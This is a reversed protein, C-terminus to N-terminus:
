ISFGFIIGMASNGSTANGTSGNESVYTWSYNSSAWPSRTWWRYGRVWVSGDSNQINESSSLDRVGLRTHTSAYEASVYYYPYSGVAWIDGETVPYYEDLLVPNTGSSIIRKGPISNNRDDIIIEPFKIRSNNSSFYSIITGEYSYPASSSGGIERLSPIYIKDDFYNTASSGSGVSSAIEVMKIASQMNYPMADWVRNNLFTRMTAVGWGGANSSGSSITYLKSLEDNLVWSTNAYNSVSTAWYRNEGAYEMRHTEGTWSALKRAVNNGLDDFWIKCWHIWGKAYNRHGGALVPDAGFCLIQSSLASTSRVSQTYSLSDQYTTGNNNFSYIYLSSSGKKHRLVIMNRCGGYGVNTMQGGWEVQNNTNNGNFTLHFGESGNREYCSILTGSASSTSLFEYDVALTFSPADEDFLHLETDIHTSGDFFTDSLLEIEDVNSYTPNFARGGITFDVHDKADFYTSAMRAQAIGYIEAISMDYSEKGTSPLNAEDWVAYVDMDDKISGTSKDWGNWLSYHFTQEGSTDKPWEGNYVLETEVGATQVDLPVVSGPKSFWRVTYTRPTSTYQATIVRDSVVPSTINDWGSFTYSYQYDSEKTPTDILNETVPNIPSDGRDSYYTYLTSGDANLYTVLYQTILNNQDYIVTLQNNWVDAYMALERLRISGLVTAIGTLISASTNHDSEDLGMLEAINNLTDTTPLTWDVGIIRVRSLNDSNTVLSLSDVGPTNEFRLTTLNNYSELSFNEDNLYYLDRMTLASPSGLLAEEILGGVAFNVGTFGSGRIDLSKLAQCNSLDLTSKSNPCNQIYLEELMPNSEFGVSTLNPNTYGSESSGIQLSRLRIAKSFNCYGIYLPSVDGVARVNSAGHINIVTDNMNSSTDNFSITYFVGKEAKVRKMVSAVEVVIYGKNYLMVEVASTPPVANITAQIVAREEPTMTDNVSPTYGRMTISDSTCYTGTYQSAMYTLNNRVFGERQHTKQGGELMSIYTDDGNQEYPRLYKYWYDRNWVREPVYKQHGNAFQLYNDANWAGASERNQWMLRRAPYLGYIFQWYVSMKGNFVDGAGLTDMGECGFPITLKGTNNNGDATDNDYNKCLHWHIQDDTGWFTNKCVNDVMAHQEIFVYHYVMSDMVLHDECEDLLKAMRYNYSDTTYRGAYDSITLGALVPTQENADWASTGKFTYAGYTVPSPLPANTAAAPNCSNMWNCFNIFATEMQAVESAHSKRWTKGPYRFEFYNETDLDAKTIPATMMCIASNNDKTEFCCELPNNADHFVSGNDKSNGMNCIAYMHYSDGNPDVDTFLAYNVDENDEHRDRIFQVGIHHEMCDRSHEVNARAGSKYPQFRDYWEALCMNNVNECSAVNVKTNFYSIPISDKSMSYGDIHRGNGDTFGETFDGDTNAASSIYNISSTGQVGITVNNATIQDAETGAGYIQQYSCGAVPDTKMKNLTMRPIDWLHVRCEPNRLALKEYSIEGNQALIDNRNFRKVMEVANPADAIFNDMHNDASLYTEYVKILYIYVDCDESGIVIKKKSTQTFNDNSAYMNTSCLVGDIYTQIYRLSRNQNYSSVMNDPSIDYEFETYAGEMYQVAVSNQESSALGGNAGLSVGIGDSVCDLWVADYDRSNTAKFIIKFNKGHVKADNGFLEYDVTMTTGAKVCIFQRIQDDDDLETKIGGNNWDFNQSFSATVGNSSWARLAANGALDNAKLKFAYGAIEENDIELPTATIYIYKVTNGSTISLVKEGSTTPTYNWFHVTRDVSDDGTWEAVVINGDKLIVDSTLSNPTYVVIPLRITNYQSIEAEQVPCSIIPANNEADVFIMDHFVSESTIFTSNVTATCYIEVLHSGHSLKDIMVYQEVGSRTTTNTLAHETDGDIIIYSTKAVDGYPTWRIAVEDATNITADDYDWVVYMNVSNVTWTKTVVTLSEGGTDVSISIKINNAGVNLYPGINFTNAGQGATSTAKKINNVYWTATGSGVADGASDTAVFEYQINCAEGHVTTISANTVRTISASGSSTGGGGGGTIEIDKTDGDTYVIQIGNEVRNVDEVIISTDKTAVNKTTGDKYSVTIGDEHQTIDSVMNTMSGIAAEANNLRGKISNIDSEATGLRTNVTNLLADLQSATYSDSGVKYYHAEIDNEQDAPMFRWHVYHAAASDYIYYDTFESGNSVTPLADGVVSAAGGVIWWSNNIWKYYFCSNGEKLIYDVDVSGSQPLSSVVVTSSSGFNDWMYDESTEDYIYWWKEYGTNNNNPILYFTREEPEAPLANVVECKFAKYQGIMTRTYNQGLWISNNLAEQLSTIDQDKRSGFKNTTVSAGTNPDTLSYADEIEGKVDDLDDQVAGVADDAYAYVDQEIGQPDYTSLQLSGDAKDLSEQIDLSLKEKEISNDGITSGRTTNKLM